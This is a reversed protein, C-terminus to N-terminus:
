ERENEGKKLQVSKENNRVSNVFVTPQPPRKCGIYNEKAEFFVVFDFRNAFTHGDNKGWFNRCKQENVKEQREVSVARNKLFLARSPSIVPNEQAVHVVLVCNDRECM